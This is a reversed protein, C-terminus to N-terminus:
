KGRYFPILATRRPALCYDTVGKWPEADYGDVPVERRVRTLDDLNWGAATLLPDIIKIRTKAESLNNNSM